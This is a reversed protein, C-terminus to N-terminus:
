VGLLVSLVLWVGFIALWLIALGWLKPRMKDMDIGPVFVLWQLPRV